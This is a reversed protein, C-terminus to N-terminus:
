GGAGCGAGHTCRAANRARQRYEEMNEVQNRLEAETICNMTPITTGIRKERKCYMTKGDKQVTKYSRAADQFRKEMATATHEESTGSSPAPAASATPSSAPKAAPAPAPQSACASIIAVGMSLSLALLVQKVAM